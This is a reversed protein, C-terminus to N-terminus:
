FLMVFLYLARCHRLFCRLITTTVNAFWILLVAAIANIHLAEAASSGCPKTVKYSLASLYFCYFDVIHVSRLSRRERVTRDFPIGAPPPQLTVRRAYVAM